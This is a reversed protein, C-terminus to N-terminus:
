KIIVKLEKKGWEIAEKKTHMWIDFRDTNRYRSNMRDECTYIKDNIQVKTGFEYKSPCALVGERTATGAATERPNDDTEDVSSTYATVTALVEIRPLPDEKPAVYTTTSSILNSGAFLMMIAIGKMNNPVSTHYTMQSLGIIGGM